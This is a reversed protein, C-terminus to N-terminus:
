KLPVYGALQAGAADSIFNAVETPHPLMRVHSSPIHISQAHVREAVAKELEPQIM